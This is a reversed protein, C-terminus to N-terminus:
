GKVKKEELMRGEKDTLRIWFWSRPGEWHDFHYPMRKSGPNIHHIDLLVRKLTGDAEYLSLQLNNDETQQKFQFVGKVRRKAFLGTEEAQMDLEGEAVVSDAHRIQVAYAQDEPLHKGVIFHHLHRGAEIDYDRSLWFYLRGAEDYVGVTAGELPETSVWGVKVRSRVRKLPQVSDATTVQKEALVRDGETLRLYVPTEPGEWHNVGLRFQMFGAEISKDTFYRQIERGQDDYLALKTSNADEPLLVEMSTRVSFIPPPGSPTYRVVPPAIGMEEGIVAAMERAHATDREVIESPARRDALAWVAMQAAATQTRKRAIVGALRRLRQSAMEGIRFREGRKPGPRDAPETRSQRVPY